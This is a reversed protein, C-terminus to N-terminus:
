FIISTSKFLTSEWFCAAVYATETPLSTASESTTSSNGSPGSWPLPLLPEQLGMMAM